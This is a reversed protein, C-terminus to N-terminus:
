SARAFEGHYKRAADCYAAHAAEPTDFYGLHKRLGSVHIQASWRKNKVFWSVGKFGSTNNRNAGRNCLNEAHSCERLNARRCNLGNMDKHDARTDTDTLGLIARHLLVMHPKGGVIWEKRVAYVTNKAVQAYWIQGSVLPVDAADIIAVYGKTLPVLAIDGEIVIRRTKVDDKGQDIKTVPQQPQVAPLTQM